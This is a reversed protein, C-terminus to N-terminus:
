RRSVSQLPPSRRRISRLARSSRCSRGNESSDVSTAAGVPSLESGTRSSRAATPPRLNASWSASVPTSAPPRDLVPERRRHQRDDPRDHGLAAPRSQRASAHPVPAPTMGSFKRFVRMAYAPAHPVTEAIDEITLPERYHTAVLTAMREFRGLTGRSHPLQKATPHCHKRRAWISRWAACGPRRGRASWRTCNRRTTEASPGLEEGVGPSPPPATARRTSDPSRGGAPPRMLL